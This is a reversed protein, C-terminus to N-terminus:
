RGGQERMARMDSLSLARKNVKHMEAPVYTKMRAQTAEHDRRSKWRRELERLIQELAVSNSFQYILDGDRDWPWRNWFFRVLRVGLDTGKVERGKGDTCILTQMGRRDVAQAMAKYIYPVGGRLMVRNAYAQREFEEAMAWLLDNGYGKPLDSSPPASPASGPSDAAAPTATQGRTAQMSRGVSQSTTQKTRTVM